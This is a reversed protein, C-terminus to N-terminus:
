VEVTIPIGPGVLDSYQTIRVKLDGTAVPGGLQSTQLDVPYVASGASPNLATPNQITGFTDKQFFVTLPGIESPQRIGQAVPVSDSAYDVFFYAQGFKAEFRVRTRDKTITGSDLTAPVGATFEFISYAINDAVGSLSIVWITEAFNADRFHFEMTTASGVFFCDAQFFSNYPDLLIEARAAFGVLYKIDPM